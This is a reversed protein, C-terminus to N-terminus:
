LLSLYQMLLRPGVGTGLPGGVYDRDPTGWASGAIDLHCWPTEGVFNALFAAGSTSGNGQGPSNINRLDAITGKVQERHCDLLPLEWVEESTAKGAALLGDRLEPTSPFIGSLEHGLAMIVAGTLTALDLIEDPKIKAQTYCIADALILRGEADTNLVEITTGNM